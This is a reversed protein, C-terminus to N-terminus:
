RKAEEWELIIKGNTGNGGLTPNSITEGNNLVGLDRLSGGGGGAGYGDASFGDTTGVGANRVNGGTGVVNIESKDDENVIKIGVFSAGKGGKNMVPNDGQIGKKCYKEDNLYKNSNGRYSCVNSVSGGVGNIVNGSADISPSSGKNGGGARIERSAGYAFVSSGGNKSEVLNNNLIYGGSGGKGIRIKIKENARVYVTYSMVNGSAGGGGAGVNALKYVSNVSDWYKNWSLRAYGGSGSGGNALGYGGGGGCGYGSANKGDPSGSTGGAGPTCTGTFPTTTTGGNGGITGNAYTASGTTSGNGASKGNTNSFGALTIRSFAGPKGNTTSGLASNYPSIDSGYACGTPSGGFTGNSQNDPTTLLASSGRSIKTIMDLRASTNAGNGVGAGVIAGGSNILGATGGSMGSGIKVNLVEKQNVIIAQLPVIQASGGGSGGPGYSLYSIRMAGDKGDVGDKGGNCYNNGFITSVQGGTTGSGAKGGTGGGGPLGTCNQNSGGNGGNGGQAGGPAGAGGGGGGGVAGVLAMVPEAGLQM